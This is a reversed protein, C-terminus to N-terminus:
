IFAQGGNIQILEGTIFSAKDSVLFEIVSAVESAEGLRNMLIQSKWSEVISRDTAAHFQTDITGPSVANVRIGMPALDKASGRTFSQVAGKSASYLSAGPGGGSIVAITSFNIISPNTGKKLLPVAARTAFFVSDFNLAMVSRMFETSMTEIPSRGGLGGVGNVLVDISDHKSAIEAFMADVDAENTSDCKYFSATIGKEKMDALVAEARVDTYDTLIVEYGAKGLTEATALGIGMTSGTIIAKM